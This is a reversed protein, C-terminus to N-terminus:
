QFAIIVTKGERDSVQQEVEREQWGQHAHGAVEDEETDDQDEAVHPQQQSNWHLHPSLAGICPQM